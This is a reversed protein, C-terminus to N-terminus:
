AQVKSGNWLEEMEARPFDALRRGRKLAEQEMWQFRKAFKRNARSTALEPEVGALRALNMVSFFLDGIEEEVEVQLEAARKHSKSKALAQRVEHTEEVIKGLVDEADEWDFGINAARRTLQFGELLAPLGRPVGSLISHFERKGAKPDEGREQAKIEEWKKLVEASNGAKTKGFVHPHRRVMKTHVARIVDSIDFRKQEKALEAHFVIQLLLDGLEEAFKRPDDGDMADLVEYAEEILFPRLSQHTQERDWPCGNPARLRKQLAVLQEFWKGTGAKGRPRRTKKREKRKKRGRNTSM